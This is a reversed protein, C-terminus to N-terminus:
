SDNLRLRYGVGAETVIYEPRAPESEIKARLNSIHVRLLHSEEEYSGGWIQRLLQNQTVVKGANSVLVKLLDHITNFGALSADVVDAKITSLLRELAGRTEAAQGCLRPQAGSVRPDQIEYRAPLAVKLKAM